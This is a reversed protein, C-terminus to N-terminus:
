QRNPIYGGRRYRRRIRWGTVRARLLWVAVVAALIPVAVTGVGALYAAVHLADWLGDLYTM